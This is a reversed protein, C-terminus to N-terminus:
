ASPNVPPLRDLESLRATITVITSASPTFAVRTYRKNGVYGVRLTTNVAWGTTLALAGAATKPGTVDGAAAAVWTANDDCEQVIISTPVPATAGASIDFEVADMGVTDISPTNTVAASTATANLLRVIGLDISSRNPM